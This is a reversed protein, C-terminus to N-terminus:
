GQSAKWAAFLGSEAEIIDVDTIPNENDGGLNLADFDWSGVIAESDDGDPSTCITDPCATTAWGSRDIVIATEPFDPDDINSIAENIAMTISGRVEHDTQEAGM